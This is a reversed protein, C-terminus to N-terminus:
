GGCRYSVTESHDHGLHRPIFPISGRSVHKTADGHRCARLPKTSPRHVVVRITITPPTCALAAARATAPSSM